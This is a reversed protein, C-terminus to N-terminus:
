EEDDAAPAQASVDGSAYADGTLEPGAGAADGRSGHTARSCRALWCRLRGRQRECRRTRRWTPKCLTGRGLGGYICPQALKGRAEWNGGSVDAAGGERVEGLGRAHSGVAMALATLRRHRPREGGRGM